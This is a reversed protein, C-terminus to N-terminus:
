RECARVGHPTLSRDVRRAARLSPEVIMAPLANLLGLQAGPPFGRLARRALAARRTIEAEMARMLTSVHEMPCAPSRADLVLQAAAPMDFSALFSALLARERWTRPSSESYGLVDQLDDAIQYAQGARAGFEASARRGGPSAGAAIAGLEAAAAFLAGTKLQIV